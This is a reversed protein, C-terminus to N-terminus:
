ENKNVHKFFNYTIRCAVDILEKRSVGVDFVSPALDPISITQAIYSESIDGVEMQTQVTDVLMELLDFLTKINSRGHYLTYDTKEGKILLKIGLTKSNLMTRDIEYIRGKRL